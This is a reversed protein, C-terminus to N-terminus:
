HCVVVIRILIQIEPCFKMCIACDTTSNHGFM